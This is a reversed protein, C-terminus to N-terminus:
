ELDEKLLRSKDIWMGDSTIHALMQRLVDREAMAKSLKKDMGYKLVAIKYHKEVKTYFDQMWSMTVREGVFAEDYVYLNFEDDEWEAEVFGETARSEEDFDEYFGKGCNCDFEEDMIYGGSLLWDRTLGWDSMKYPIEIDNVLLFKDTDVPVMKIIKDGKKFTLENKM